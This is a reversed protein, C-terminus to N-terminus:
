IKGARFEFDGPDNVRPIELASDESRFPIRLNCSSQAVSGEIHKATGACALLVDIRTIDRAGNLQHIGRGHSELAHGVDPGHDHDTADDTAIRRVEIIDALNGRLSCGHEVGASLCRHYESHKGDLIQLLGEVTGAPLQAIFARLRSHRGYTHGIEM